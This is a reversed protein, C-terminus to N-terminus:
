GHPYLEIAIKKAKILLKKYKAPVLINKRRFAKAKGLAFLKLSSIVNQHELLLLKKQIQPTKELLYNKLNAPKKTLSFYLKVVSILDGEDYEPTVLHVTSETWSRTTNTLLLYALRACTVRSGYMGKGGFDCNRGPDLPGPHQNIIRGQYYDIISLPTKPLWGNQTVLNVKYKKLHALLQTDLNTSIIKTPIKYKQAKSIGMASSKSSIVIVPDILNNLLGEKCSHLIGEMTTGSGSILIGVRLPNASKKKPIM